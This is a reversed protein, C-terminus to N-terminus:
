ARNVREAPLFSSIYAVPQSHHIPIHVSSKGLRVEDELIGEAGMNDLVTMQLGM